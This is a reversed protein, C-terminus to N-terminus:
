EHNVAHAMLDFQNLFLSLAANVDDSRFVLYCVSWVPEICPVLTLSPNDLFFTGPTAAASEVVIFYEDSGLEILGLGDVDDLTCPRSAFEISRDQYLKQVDAHCQGFELNMPHIFCSDRLDSFVLADRRALDNNSSVVFFLREHWAELSKFSLGTNKAIPCIPTQDTTCTVVAVDLKGDFLAQSVSDCSGLATREYLFAPSEARARLIADSIVGQIRPSRHYRQVLLRAHHSDRAAFMRADLRNEADIVSSACELLVQGCYTLRAYTGHTGGAPAREVLETGFSRELQAIHRSLTPQSVNLERAASSFNLHCAFVVFERLFLTDM